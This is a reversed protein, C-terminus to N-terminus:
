GRAERKQLLDIRALLAAYVDTTLQEGDDRLRDRFGHAEAVSTLTAIQRCLHASRDPTM